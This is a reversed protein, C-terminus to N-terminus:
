PPCVGEARYVRRKNFRPCPWPTASCGGPPIWSLSTQAPQFPHEQVRGRGAPVAWSSANFRSGFFNFSCFAGFDQLFFDTKSKHNVRGVGKNDMKGMKKVGTQERSCFFLLGTPTLLKRAALFCGPQPIPFLKHAPRGWGGWAPNLKPMLTRSM